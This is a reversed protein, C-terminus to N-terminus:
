LDLFAVNEALSTITLPRSVRHNHTPCSSSTINGGLPMIAIPRSITLSFHSTQLDQFPGHEGRSAIAVPAFAIAALKPISIIEALSTIIMPRSIYHKRYAMPERTEM